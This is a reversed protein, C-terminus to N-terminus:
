SRDPRAPQHEPVEPKPKGAATRTKPQKAPKPKRFVMALNEEIERTLQDLGRDDKKSM